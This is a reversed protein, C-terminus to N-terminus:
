ELTSCNQRSEISNSEALLDVVKSCMLIEEVGHSCDLCVVSTDVDATPRM